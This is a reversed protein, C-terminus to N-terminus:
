NLKGRLRKLAAETEHRQSEPLGLGIATELAEIGGRLSGLHALMLGRERWLGADRPALWLMAQVAEAAEAVRDLRFLRSKVNNHLRLLVARNGVPSYHSASLEIRDGAVQKLLARLSAADRLQGHHFPDIVAREAGRDLRLLFHAPFNLGHVTWGAGRAAHMYLIGLAVPLGRRRDIVRILNANQLDDYTETDGNYGHRELIVRKLLEARRPLQVDTSRAAGILDHSLTDLHRRYPALDVPGSDLMGLALAAETLDIAEDAQTGCRRLVAEAAAINDNSGQHSASTDSPKV